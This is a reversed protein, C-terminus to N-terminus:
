RTTANKAPSDPVPVPVRRKEGAAAEARPAIVFVRRTGGRRAARVEFDAAHPVKELRSESVIVSEGGAALFTRLSAESRVNVIRRGSYYAIGAALAPHDFVAIPATAPGVLAAARAIPAPSKEDDFAPYAVTFVLLEIAFVSALTPAIRVATHQNSHSAVLTAIMCTGVALALLAGFTAPLRFAPWAALSFGDAAWVWLGFGCSAVALLGLTRWAPGSVRRDATLWRELAIGCFIAVAPYTPLLYLGRKGASLSFFVFCLIVWTLLLRAGDREPSAVAAHSTRWAVVGAWPWLLSWPLYELPFQLFFYFPSRVHATGSFFRGFVNDIVAVEFFGAPALGVALVIWGLAPGLSIAFSWLPFVRPFDSLRGQWALYAAFAPVPLLGVPGKTLVALALACHVLYFWRGRKHPHERQQFLAFLALGIFATLIVDLQARRALHAFRFVTLLVAGSLLGAAPRRTIASGFQVTLWICAIGALASPLRAAIESVKGAPSGLAAVIWYYLPPKQTYPEGNLHLVVLGQAGHEYSRLEEAVAAFRPEDPAWLGTAGLRLGYLLAAAVLLAAFAHKHVPKMAHTQM